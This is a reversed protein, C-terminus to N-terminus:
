ATAPVPRRFVLRRQAPYTWAVFVTAACLIKAAIYPVHLDVAVIKMAFAMLLATAVAVLGFRAVQHVTVPSRDRFAVHKNMLFCVVAGATCAVFASVPISAGAHEVLLVLTAVDVVTSVAGGAGAALMERPNKVSEPLLVRSAV